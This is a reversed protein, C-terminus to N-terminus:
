ELEPISNLTVRLIVPVSVGIRSEIYGQEPRPRTPAPLEALTMTGGSSLVMIPAATLNYRRQTAEASTIATRRIPKPPEEGDADEYSEFLMQGYIANEILFLDRLHRRMLIKDKHNSDKFGRTTLNIEIILNTKTGHRGAGSETDFERNLHRFWVVSKGTDVNPRNDYHWEIVNREDFGTAALLLLNMADLVEEVKVSQNSYLSDGSGGSGGGAGPCLFTGTFQTGLTGYKVGKRVNGRGPLILNGTLAGDGFVTGYRVDGIAPFDCSISSGVFLGHSLVSIPDGPAM